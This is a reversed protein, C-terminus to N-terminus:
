EPLEGIITVYIEDEEKYSTTSTVNTLIGDTYLIVKFLGLQEYDKSKAVISMKNGSTNEISVLIVEEPMSYMVQQLFIPIANKVITGEEAVEVDNGTLKNYRETYTDAAAQLMGIDQSAKIAQTQANKREVALQNSAEVLNNSVFYSLVSYGIAFILVTALIRCLLKEQSDLSGKNFEPLKLDPVGTIEIGGISKTGGGNSKFNLEPIGEGVGELALATASNAEMLEKVSVKLSSTKLFSPRLMECHINDFYNQFYLDVNNIAIGSGTLYITDINEPIEDKIRKVENVIKYLTPMVVDLYENGDAIGTDQTSITTNKCIEYSKSLSNESANIESLIQSMGDNIKIIDDIVGNIVTTVTTMDEINVIIANPNSDLDLLNVISTSIPTSSALKLKEFPRVREELAAKMVSVNLARMKDANNRNVSLIYRHEFLNKEYGKENCIMEFEIDISKRIDNKSLLSFVDIYDYNEGSINIAIPLRQSNTEQVIQNLTGKLDEYFKVGSSEIKINDKEKSIKSYKVCLDDIYIGLCSQM